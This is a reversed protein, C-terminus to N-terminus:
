YRYTGFIRDGADGLGPCIYANENLQRDLAGVILPVDPFEKEFAVMGSGIRLSADRKM